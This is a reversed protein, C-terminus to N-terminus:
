VNVIASHTKDVPTLKKGCYKEKQIRDLWNKAMGLGNMKKKKKEM